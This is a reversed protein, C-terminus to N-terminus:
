KAEKKHKRACAMMQGKNDHEGGCYKCQIKEIQNEQAGSVSIASRLLGNQEILLQRIDYLLIKETSNLILEM